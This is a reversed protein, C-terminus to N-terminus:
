GVRDARHPKGGAHAVFSELVVALAKRVQPSGHTVIYETMRLLRLEEKGYRAKGGKPRRGQNSRILEGICDGSSSVPCRHAKAVETGDGVQFISAVEVGLADALRRLTPMTPQVHNNEIRSIYSTALGAREGVEMQTLSKGQRIRLVAKGLSM